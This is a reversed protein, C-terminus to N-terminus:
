IHKIDNDNNPWPWPWPHSVLWDRALMVLYFELIRSNRALVQWAEVHRPMHKGSGKAYFHPSLYFSRKWLFPKWAKRWKVKWLFVVLELWVSMKWAKGKFYILLTTKWSSLSWLSFAHTILSDSDDHDIFSNRDRRGKPSILIFLFKLIVVIMKPLTKHHHCFHLYM